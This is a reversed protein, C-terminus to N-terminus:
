EHTFVPLSTHARSQLGGDFEPHGFPVVHVDNVVGNVTPPVSYPTQM